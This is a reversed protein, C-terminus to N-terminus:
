RSRRPALDYVNLFRDRSTVVVGNGLHRTCHILETLNAIIAVHTWLRDAESGRRKFFVIHGIPMLCFESESLQFEFPLPIKKYILPLEIGVERYVKRVFHMCNFTKWDFPYGLYSYAIEVICSSQDKSLIM